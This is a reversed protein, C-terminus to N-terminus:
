RGFGYRRMLEQRTATEREGAGTMRVVWEYVGPRVERWYPLDIAGNAELHGLYEDLSHFVRGRAYPLNAVGTEGGDAGPEGAM